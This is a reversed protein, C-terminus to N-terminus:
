TTTNTAGRPKWLSTSTVSRLTHSSSPGRPCRTRQCRSNECILRSIHSYLKGISHFHRLRSLECDSDAYQRVVHLEHGARRARECLAHRQHLVRRVGLSHRQHVLALHWEDTRAHLDGAHERHQAAGRQGLRLDHGASVHARCRAGDSISSGPTALGSLTLLAPQGPTVSFQRDVTRPGSAVQIDICAVNTPVQTIAARAVGIGPDPTSCGLVLSVAIISLPLRM